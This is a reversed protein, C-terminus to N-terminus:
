GSLKLNMLKELVNENPNPEEHTTVSENDSNSDESEDESSECDDSDTTDSEEQTMIDMLLKQLLKEESFGLAAQHVDPLAKQMEDILQMLIEEKLGLEVYRIYDKIFLHNLVACDTAKFADYAYMLQLQIWARRDVSSTSSIVNQACVLSIEKNRYYPYTCSRRYFSRLMQEVCEFEVFFALTGSIRHINIHSNAENLENNNTLQDYGIALLIDILGFLVSRHDEVFSYAEKQRIKEDLIVRARYSQDDSLQYSIPFSDLKLGLKDISFQIYDMGYHEGKFDNKEAAEKLEWRQAFSYTCPDPLVKLEQSTELSLPGNHLRGFGYPYCSIESDTTKTEGDLPVRFTVTNKEYDISDPYAKGPHASHSLPIRAHYPAATFTCEKPFIDLVLDSEHELDLEPLDLVVLIHHAQLITQFKISDEM